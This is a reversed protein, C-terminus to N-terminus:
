GREFAGMEAELAKEIFNKVSMLNTLYRKELQQQEQNIM